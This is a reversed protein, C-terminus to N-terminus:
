EAAVYISSKKLFERILAESHKVGTIVEVEHQAQKITVPPSERFHSELSVIYEKLEGEPQCYYFEKLREISGHHYSEFYDRITNETVGTIDAIQAHSLDAAKLLLAKMRRQVLSALHNHRHCRIKELLEPTFELRITM